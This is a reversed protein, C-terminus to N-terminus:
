SFIDNSNNRNSDNDNDRKIDLSPGDFISSYTSNPKSNYSDNNITGLDNSVNTNATAGNIADGSDNSLNETSNAGNNANGVGFVDYVAREFVSPEVKAKEKDSASNLNVSENGNSAFIDGSASVNNNNELNSNFSQNDINNSNNVDFPNVSNAFIDEKSSDQNNFVNSTGMLSDDKSQGKDFMNDDGLDKTNNMDFISSNTDKSNGDLSDQRNVDQNNLNNSGLSNNSFANASKDLNGSDIELSSNNNSNMEMGLNNDLNNSDGSLNSGNDLENSDAGLNSGTVNYEKSLGNLNGNDHGDELKNANMMNNDKASDLSAGSDLNVGEGDSLNGIDPNNKKGNKKAKKYGIIIIFIFGGIIIGAGIFINLFNYLEFEFEIKDDGQSSLDWRLEKNDNNTSTANNSKASYPLTVNFSLDMKSALGSFSNTLGSTFDDLSTSDDDTDYTDDTTDYTDDATDDDSTTTDGLSDSADDNLDSDATNFNFKATYVNKILGKKVKFINKNKNSKSILGSLSYDTASSSSVFDINSVGRVIKFGKMGDKEYKSVSFGQDELKKIDDSSLIDKDGLLSTDFAYIISFNMSKDRKIDMNANFKVCGTLTIAMFCMLVGLKLKRMM